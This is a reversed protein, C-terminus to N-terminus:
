SEVSLISYIRRQEFGPQIGAMKGPEPFETVYLEPRGSENSAYTLLHGDPLFIAPMNLLRDDSCRTRAQTRWDGVFNRCGSESKSNQVTMVLTQGDATWDSPYKSVQDPALLQETASGQLGTKRIEFGNDVSVAFDEWGPGMAWRILGAPDFTARSLTARQSDM